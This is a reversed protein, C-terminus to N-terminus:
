VISKNRAERAKTAQRTAEASQRAKQEDSAIRRKQDGDPLRVPVSFKVKSTQQNLHSGGAEFSALGWVKLDGRGSGKTEAVVAVEFDVVTFIGLADQILSGKGEVKQLAAAVNDGGESSQAKRIGDLVEILAKEVFESLNM